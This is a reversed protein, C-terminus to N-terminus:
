IDRPTRSAGVQDDQTLLNGITNYVLYLLGYKRGIKVQAMDGIIM